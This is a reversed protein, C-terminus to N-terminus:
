LTLPYHKGYFFSIPLRFPLKNKASACPLNNQLPYVTQIIVLSKSAKKIQLASHYVWQKSLLILKM